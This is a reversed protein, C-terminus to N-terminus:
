GGQLTHEPPVCRPGRGCGGPNDGTWTNNIGAPEAELTAGSVSENVSVTQGNITALRRGPAILVSELKLTSDVTEELAEYGLPQTPDRLTESQVGLAYFGIVLGFLM